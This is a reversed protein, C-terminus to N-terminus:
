YFFIGKTLNGRFYQSDECDIVHELPTKNQAKYSPGFAVCVVEGRTRSIHSHGKTLRGRPVIPKKSRMRHRPLTTDHGSTALFSSDAQVRSLLEPMAQEWQGVKESPLWLAGLPSSGLAEALCSDTRLTMEYHQLARFGPGHDERGDSGKEQRWSPRDKARGQERTDERSPFSGKYCGM